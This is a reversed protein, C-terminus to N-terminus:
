FIPSDRQLLSTVGINQGAKTEFSGPRLLVTRRLEAREAPTGHYSSDQM